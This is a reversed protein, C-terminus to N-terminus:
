EEIKLKRSDKDQANESSAASKKAKNEVSIAKLLCGHSVAYLPNDSMRVKKVEFPLDLGSMVESFIDIFGPICATGGAVVIELPTDIQSDLKNFKEAFSNLANEIMTHYFIELAAQKMDGGDVNKLDFSKEKFRTIASVDVGAVKSSEKDIWDGSQAISFNILPMKKWAFCINAMGAGFSFSIGSFPVDLGDEDVATPKETFIIALAEPICEVTYGLSKLFSDMMKKHFVVSLDKDVPDGPACFCLVEGKEKPPGLLNKIIQHIIAVSLKEESTNLLGDKMPRRLEGIKTVVINKDDATSKITLLNKLRIADEGVIYHQDQHKVFSWKNDKLTDETDAGVAAQLFCNREKSFAPQKTSEDVEGKVLYMTGVDLSVAM